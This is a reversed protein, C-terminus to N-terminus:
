LNMRVTKLFDNQGYTLLVMQLVVVVVRAGRDDIGTLLVVSQRWKQRTSDVSNASTSVSPKRRLFARM